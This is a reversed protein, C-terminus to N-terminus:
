ELTSHAEMISYIACLKFQAYHPNCRIHIACKMSQECFTYLFSSKYVHLLSCLLNGEAIDKTNTHQTSNSSWSCLSCHGQIFTAIHITLSIFQECFTYQSSGKYVHLLSCQEQLCTATLLARTTMYCHANSKYVHLLSSGWFCSTSGGGDCSPM